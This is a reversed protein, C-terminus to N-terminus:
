VFRMDFVRLEACVACELLARLWSNLMRHRTVLFEDGFRGFAKKGPFQASVNFGLKKVNAQLPTPCPM